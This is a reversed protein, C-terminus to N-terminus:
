IHILSLTLDIAAIETTDTKQLRLSDLMPLEYILPGIKILNTTDSIATEQSFSFKM